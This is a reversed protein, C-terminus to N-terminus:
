ATRNAYAQEFRSALGAQQNDTRTDRGKLYNYRDQDMALRDKAIGLEQNGFYIGALGGAIGVGTKFTALSPMSFGGEQSLTGISKGASNLIDGNDGIMGGGKGFNQWQEPTMNSTDYTPGNYKELIGNANFRNTGTNFWSKANDLLSSPNYQTVSSTAGM